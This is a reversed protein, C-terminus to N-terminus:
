EGNGEIKFRSLLFELIDRTGGNPLEDMVRLLFDHDIKVKNKPKRQYTTRRRKRLNSWRLNRKNGDIFIVGFEPWHGTQLLWAVNGAEYYDDHGIRIRLRTPKGKATWTITANTGANRMSNTKQWRMEGTEGCYEVNEKIYKMDADNM